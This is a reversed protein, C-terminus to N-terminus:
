TSPTCMNWPGRMSGPAESGFDTWYACSIRMALARPRMPTTSYTMDEDAYVLSKQETVPLDPM